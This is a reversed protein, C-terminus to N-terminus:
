DSAAEKQGEEAEGSVAGLQSDGGQGRAGEPKEVKANEKEEQLTKMELAYRMIFLRAARDAAIGNKHWGKLLDEIDVGRELVPSLMPMDPRPFLSVMTKRWEDFPAIDSKAPNDSNKKKAM